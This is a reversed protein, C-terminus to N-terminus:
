LDITKSNVEKEKIELGKIALKVKHPEDQWRSGNRNGLYYKIAQIDPGKYKKVKSIVVKEKLLISGDEAKVEEKVKTPVEEQYEYGTCLKYLAREVRECKKGKAILIVEKLQENEKKHRRFTSYAVDIKKAIQEESLGEEIWSEINNLNNEIKEKNSRM